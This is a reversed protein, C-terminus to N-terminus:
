PVLLLKGTTRRAELDQHAQQAQDLGYEGGIRVSLENSTILGFLKEARERFEKPGLYHAGIPRTLYLSGHKALVQPDIPPVPGSAQGFLTLLGRPRLSALSGDFTARGVGDYVVDVGRGDTLERVREAFNEYRIVEDAGAEKSLEAKDDTSVTTIVRGGRRKAMQTLLLGVGGAGAHILVQDGGSVPHTSSSLFEATLGQLLVAAAVTPPVDTPVPLLAREPAVVQAAYSGSVQSWAVQDGVAFETVGEGLEAVIGAGELGPTFPPETPYLGTRHYVDIYNVGVASVDILVEGAKPEPTPVETIALVEPGGHENVVITRV